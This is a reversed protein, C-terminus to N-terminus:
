VQVGLVVSHTNAANNSLTTTCAAPDMINGIINCYDCGSAIAIGTTWAGSFNGGISNNSITNRISGSTLQIGDGPSSTGTLNYVDNDTVISRTTSTLLIGTQFCHASNRVVKCNNSNQLWIGTVTNSGGIGTACQMDQISVGYSAVVNICATASTLTNNVNAWGGAIEVMGGAIINQVYFANILCEDTICQVFHVDLANNFPTASTGDVFFGYQYVDAECYHAFFDNIHL